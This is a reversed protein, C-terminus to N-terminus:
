RGDGDRKLWAMNMEAYIGKDNHMDGHGEHNILADFDNEVQQELLRAQEEEESQRSSVDDIESM